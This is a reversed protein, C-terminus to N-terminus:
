DGKYSDAEEAAMTNEYGVHTKKRWAWKVLRAEKGFPPVTTACAEDAPCTTGSQPRRAAGWRLERRLGWRMAEFRLARAPLRLMDFARELPAVADLDFPPEYTWCHCGDADVVLM